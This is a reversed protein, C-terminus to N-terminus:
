ITLINYHWKKLKKRAQEELPRVQLLVVCGVVTGGAQEILNAATYMSGGTAGLDDVILVRKGKVSDIEVKFREDKPTEYEKTIPDSYMVKDSGGPIKAKGKAVRALGVHLYMSAVTGLIYGRSDMGAVVDVGVKNYEVYFRQGIYKMVTPEAFVKRLSEFTVGEQPYNPFLELNDNIVKSFEEKSICTEGKSRIDKSPKSGMKERVGLLADIIQQKRDGKYSVAFEKIWNTGSIGTEIEIVSGVTKHYGWIYSDGRSGSSRASRVYKDIGVVKVGFEYNYYKGNEIDYVVVNALETFDGGEENDRWETIDISNEISVIYDYNSKDFEENDILSQIRMRAGFTGSRIDSIDIPQEPIMINKIKYGDPKVGFVEEVADKKINSTSTLAIRM